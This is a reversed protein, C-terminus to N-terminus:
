GKMEEYIEWIPDYRNEESTKPATMSWEDNNFRIIHRLICILFNIIM